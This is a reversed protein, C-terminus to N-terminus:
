IMPCHLYYRDIILDAEGLCDKRRRWVESLRCTMRMMTQSSTVMTVNFISITINIFTSITLENYDTLSQNHVTAQFLVQDKDFTEERM